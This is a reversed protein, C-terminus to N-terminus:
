LADLIASSAIDAALLASATGSGHLPIVQCASDGLAVFGDGVPSAIARRIPIPAGGGFIRKGAFPMSAVVEAFAQEATQGSGPRVGVLVDVFGEEVDLFRMEVSYSGRVAARDLRIGDPVASQAAAAKRDISLVERRALVTDEGTVPGEMKWKPPVKTRLVAGIGTCDAVVKASVFGGGELGVGTVFGREIVPSVVESDRKLRAGSEKAWESLQRVYSLNRLPVLPTDGLDISHKGDSTTLMTTRPEVFLAEPEPEPVRALSFTNREVDVVWERGGSPVRKKELLLVDAGGQALKAALACGAPGAGCVAVDFSLDGM